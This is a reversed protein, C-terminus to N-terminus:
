CQLIIDAVDKVENLYLLSFSSTTVMLSLDGVYELPLSLMELFSDNKDLCIVLDADILKKPFELVLYIKPTISWFVCKWSKLFLKCVLLRIRKIVLIWNSWWNHWINIYTILLFLFYGNLNVWFVIKNM